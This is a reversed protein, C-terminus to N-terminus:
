KKPTVRHKRYDRFTGRYYGPAESSIARSYNLTNWCNM